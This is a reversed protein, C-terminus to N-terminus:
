PVRFHGAQAHKGADIPLSIRDLRAVFDRDVSIAGFASFILHAEILDDKGTSLFQGRLDPSADGSGHLLRRKVFTKFNRSTAARAKRDTAGASKVCAAFVAVVASVGSRVPTQIISRKWGARNGFPAVGGKVGQAAAFNLVASVLTFSGFRAQKGCPIGRRINTGRGM